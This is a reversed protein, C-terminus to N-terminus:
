LTALYESLAEIQRRVADDNRAGGAQELLLGIESIAQHGYSSGTGKMNHGVHVVVAFDREEIAASLRALDGRRGKLYGPMLEQLEATGAPSEEPAPNSRYAHALANLLTRQSIPKTLHASCGARFSKEADSTLAHATLAIIPLALRQERGEWERILGTATLGDMEPMQVDMLVVDYDEQKVREVALAGNAVVDLDYPSGAVYARVLLQNDESDDALLVRLRRDPLSGAEGSPDSELSSGGTARGIAALLKPRDVPKLLYEALGLQQCSTATGPTDIASLIVIPVTPNKSRIVHACKLGDFGGLKTDILVLNIPRATERYRDLLRFAQQPSV